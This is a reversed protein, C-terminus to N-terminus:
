KRLETKGRRRLSNITYMKLIENKLLLKRNAVVNLPLYLSKRHAGM